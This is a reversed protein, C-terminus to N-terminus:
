RRVTRSLRPHSEAMRVEKETVVVRFGSSTDGMIHSVTLTPDSAKQERRWAAADKRDAFHRESVVRKATVVHDGFRMLPFYPGVHRQPVRGIKAVAAREEERLRKGFEKELGEATYLNKARVDAETYKFGHEGLIARLANLVHLDSETQLTQKYHTKLERFLKKMDEPLANFRKALDTHRQRQAASQVHENPAPPPPKPEGKKRRTTPATKVATLKEDPHIGYLTSESMVRSLELAADPGHQEIAKDWRHSLKIGPEMNESNDANRQFFTKLYQHLAGDNGGFDNTYLRDIQEMTSASLIGKSGRARNNELTDYSVAGVRKRIKGSRDVQDLANNIHAKAADAAQLNLSTGESALEGTFTTDATQMVLELMNTADPGKMNFVQRILEILRDWMTKTHTFDIGRLVSQFLSNSFAEAVFEEVSRMGYYQNPDTGQALLIRRTEYMIQRMGFRIHANRQIAGATAAHVAEHLLTHTLQTDADRGNARDNEFAAKNIKIVPQGGVVEYRGLTSADMDAHNDYSVRVNMNLAILRDVIAVLPHPTGKQLGVLHPTDHGSLTYGLQKLADDLSTNPKATLLTNLSAGSTRLAPTSLNLTRKLLLPNRERPLFTPDRRQLAKLAREQAYSMGRGKEKPFAKSTMEHQIQQSLQQPSFRESAKSVTVRRPAKWNLDGDADFSMGRETFWDQLEAYQKAPIEERLAKLGWSLMQAEHSSPRYARGRSKGVPLQGFGSSESTTWGMLNHMMPMVVTEYHANAHLDDHLKKAMATNAMQQEITETATIDDNLEKSPRKIDEEDLVRKKLGKRRGKGYQADLESRLLKALNAAVNAPKDAVLRAMLEMFNDAEQMGAKSQPKLKKIMEGYQIIYRLYERGYTMDRAPHPPNGGPERQDAQKKGEPGDLKALLAKLNNLTGDLMGDVHKGKETKGYIRAVQERHAEVKEKSMERAPLLDFLAQPQFKGLTKARERDEKKPSKKLAEKAEAIKAGTQSKFPASPAESTADRELKQRVRFIFKLRKSPSDETMVIDHVNGGMPEMVNTAAATAVNQAQLGTMAVGRAGGKKVEGSGAVVNAAVLFLEDIDAPKMNRIDEDSLTALLERASSEETDLEEQETTTDFEQQAAERRKARMAKTSVKSAAHVVEEARTRGRYVRRHLALLHRMAAARERAVQAEDAGESIAAQQEADTLRDYLEVDREYAIKGRRKLEKIRATLAKIKEPAAKKRAEGEITRTGKTRLRADASLDRTDLNLDRATQQREQEAEQIERRYYTYEEPRGVDLMARRQRARGRLREAVTLTRAGAEARTLTGTGLEQRVEHATDEPLEREAIDGAERRVARSERAQEAATQEEGIRTVRRAIVQEPTLIVAERGPETLEGVAQAVQDKPVLTERTVNGEVDRQQVATNDGVFKGEGAGTAYGLIAQMPIGERKMALLENAVTNNKAILADGRVSFNALPVGAEPLEALDRMNDPPVYVGLRPSDPDALDAIQAVLDRVPEASPHDSIMQPSTTADVPKMTILADPFQKYLEDAHANANGENTIPGEYFVKGDPDAAVVQFGVQQRTQQAATPAAAQPEDFISQQGPHVYTGATREVRGPFAQAMPDAAEGPKPMRALEPELGTAQNSAIVQARERLLQARNKKGFPKPPVAQLEGRPAAALSASSELEPEVPEPPRPMGPAMPEQGRERITIQEPAMTFNPKPRPLLGYPQFPPQAPPQETPAQAQAAATSQMAVAIAPDVPSPNILTTGFAASALDLDTQPTPPSVGTAGTGFVARALQDEDVHRPIATRAPAPAAAAPAAATAAAAPVEAPTEAPVEQPAPIAQERRQGFAGGVAAGMPGGVMAGQIGAEGVGEMLGRDSDFMQAAYNQAMQEASSQGAEQGAEAVYGRGMRGMLGAAKETFVPAIYRGAAAGIAGSVIGAIAPAWGQAEATYKQRATAEDVGSERMRAYSESEMLEQDSMKEIESATNAAVSGASFLAETAGLSAIAGNGLGARMMLATPVISALTSPASRAIKLGIASVFDGVDGQWITRNPDLTLIERAARQQAEPSMSAAWREAFGQSAQRGRTFTGQLAAAEEQVPSDVDRALQGAVHEGLGTAMSGIDGVGAIFARGTDGWRTEGEPQIAGQRGQWQSTDPQPQEAPTGMNLAQRARAQIGEVRSRLGGGGVQVPEFPEALPHEPFLDAFTTM